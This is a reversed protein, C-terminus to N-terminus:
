GRTHALAEGHVLVILGDPDDAWARWADSILTLDDGDALGYDVAQQAFDSELVRQAWLDGWWRRDKESAYTWTSTSYDVDTFGAQRFWRRLRRGANAQAGNRKTVALYLRLWRDLGDLEPLWAISSYDCDRAAIIGGARVLRAMQEVAGVPDKLHQLVQHAHVVDFPASPIDLTRFDGVHFSVNGAGRELAYSRAEGVVTSDLDIGVVSGPDLLKAFDTTVTGPGCGVDLLTNGPQLHPLLYGASNAATRWRHSRLVADHHGHIYVDQFSM